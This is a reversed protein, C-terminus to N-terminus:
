GPSEGNVSAREPLALVLQAIRAALEEVSDQKNLVQLVGLSQAEATMGPTVHGSTIVVPLAPAWTKVQRVVDLGSMGPMNYDTVLMDVATPNAQILALADATREFASVRIGHKKLMRSVLYVMAEYDDIYVVHRTGPGGMGAWSTHLPAQGVAPVTPVQVATSPVPQAGVKVLPLWVEFRSGKGLASQVGISGQHAKVIGHVVALGLGSGSSAGSGGVSGGGSGGGSKTSFFPEFVRALVDAAMGTGTDTVVLTAGSRQGAAMGVRVDVEGVGNTLSQWANTCLHTVVQTLQEADALVWIPQAPGHSTLVVGVPVLPKLQALCASVLQGLDLVKMHQTQQRSFALIQQVLAKAREAAHTAADLHPLAPAQPPMGSRALQLHGLLASLLNNFDQAVGGALTGMAELKQAERLQVELQQRAREAEVRQTVDTLHGAFRTPHGGADPSATQGRGHFWRFSGQRTRLRYESDFNSTRGGLHARIASTVRLLDEPHLHSRFTFSAEFDAQGEYGLLQQFRPSYYVKDTRLDWDWLGDNSGHTTLALRESTQIHALEAAKRATIDTHTGVMRLPQGSPGRSVVVGRTLVWIWRGDRHRVRHENSYIPTDGRWHAARAMSMAHQDDPHTLADMDLAHTLDDAMTYGFIARLRPSFFEHGSAMDWDWVGDGLGELVQALPM